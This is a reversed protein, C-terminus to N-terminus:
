TNHDFCKRENKRSGDKVIATGLRHLLLPLLKRRLSVIEDVSGNGKQEKSAKGKSYKIEEAGEMKLEIMSSKRVNSLTKLGEIVLVAESMARLERSFREDSVSLRQVEDVIV